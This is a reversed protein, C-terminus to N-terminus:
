CSDSLKSKESTVQFRVRAMLALHVLTIHTLHLETLLRIHMTVSHSMAADLRILTPIAQFPEESLYDLATNDKAIDTFYTPKALVIPSCYTM